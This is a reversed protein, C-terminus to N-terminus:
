KVLGAGRESQVNCFKAIHGINGCRFCVTLHRDKRLNGEYNQRKFSTGPQQNALPCSKALHGPKKCLYCLKVQLLASNGQRFSSMTPCQRSMHGFGNCSYCTKAANFSSVSGITTKSFSETAERALTKM